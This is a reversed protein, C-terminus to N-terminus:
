SRWDLQQGHAASGNTSITPASEGAASPMSRGCHLSQSRYLPWLRVGHQLPLLVRMVRGPGVPRLIPLRFLVLAHCLGQRDILPRYGFARGPARPVPRQRRGTSHCLPRRPGGLVGDCGADAQAAELTAWPHDLTSLRLSAGENALTARLM